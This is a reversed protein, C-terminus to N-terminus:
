EDTEDGLNTIQKGIYDLVSIVKSYDMRMPGIVGANGITTGDVSYVATVVACDDIGEGMEGDKAIKININMNNNKLVPYLQKKAELLELMAKAKQVNSYEPHELLKPAGEVSFHEIGGSIGYEKIIEIFAQCVKEYEQRIKQAFLDFDAIDSIKQGVFMESLFVSASNLYEDSLSPHISAVADKLVTRDTVIIFLASNDSIKVIKISKITDINQTPVFGIATMNTIQSILRAASKVVEEIHGAKFSLAQKISDLETPSLQRTPMLKDVYLRYAEATPVRGASIHPQALYGMEELTSMENRITATSVEKFYKDHIELSSVPQCNEIYDTVVAKLIKQKRESLIM